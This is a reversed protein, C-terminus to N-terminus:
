KALVTLYQLKMKRWYIVYVAVEDEELIRTHLVEGAKLNSLYGDGVCCSEASLLSVHATTHTCPMPTAMMFM